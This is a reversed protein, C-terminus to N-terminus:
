GHIWKFALKDRIRGVISHDLTPYAQVIDSVRIGMNTAIYIDMAEENSIRMQPVLGDRHAHQVNISRSGLYLHDPNCCNKVNCSHCVDMAEPIDGRYYLYSLVHTKLTSGGFALKGYGQGDTAGEFLQCGDPYEVVKDFLRDIAAEVYDDKYISLTRYPSAM